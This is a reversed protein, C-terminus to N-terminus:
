EKVLSRVWVGKKVLVIGVIAKLIDVCQVILYVTLLPWSTKYILLMAIPLCVAWTYFSDFLFTILTKGGSRLTFYCSHILAHISLFLASIFILKQALSEVAPIQHYLKPFVGSLCAVAIGIATCVAVNFATLKVATDKAEELKGAGLQQGIVVSLAAGLAIYAINSLNYINSSINLAAIANLSRLSYCQNLKTMGGSWLAENVFLPLTKVFITGFVHAPIRMSRYLGKLFVFRKGHTYIVVILCEIVRAILTALAGGRVGLRPFGLHGFILAWNLGLNVLVSAIGALMPVVTRGTERLSSAYVQVIVFPLLSFLLVSLYEKAYSLTLMANEAEEETGGELFSQIAGEGMTLFVAIGGILIVSSIYIKFRFAHRFGEYDGNGYYQAGFISAGSTAGFICLNFVFILQNVISVGSMEETGLRGVMMNDLLSVMNTIGNQLMIPIALMLVMRYFKKDGILKKM